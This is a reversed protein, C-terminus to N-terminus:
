KPIEQNSFQDAENLVQPDANRSVKIEDIVQDISPTKEHLKNRAWKEEEENLAELGLEQMRLKLKNLHILRADSPITM